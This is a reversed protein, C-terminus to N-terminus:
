REVYPDDIADDPRRRPGALAAGVALGGRFQRYLHTLWILAAGARRLRHSLRTAVTAGRRRAAPRVVLWGVLFCAGLVLPSGALTRLRVAFARRAGAFRRRSSEARLAMASVVRRQQSLEGPSWSQAM